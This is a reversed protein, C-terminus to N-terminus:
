LQAARPNMTRRRRAGLLVVGAILGLVFGGGGALAAVAIWPVSYVITTSYYTPAPPMSPAAAAMAHPAAAPVKMTVPTADATILVGDHTEAEIALSPSVGEVPCGALMALNEFRSPETQVYLYALDRSKGDLVLEDGVATTHPSFPVGPVNDGCPECLEAYRHPEMVIARVRASTASDLLQCQDAHAIAPVLLATAILWTKM